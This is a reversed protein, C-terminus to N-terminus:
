RGYFVDRDRSADLSSKTRGAALMRVIDAIGEADLFLLKMLLDREGHQIWRDPIAHIKVKNTDEGRLSLSELVASGFGGMAAHDEVTLVWPHRRVLTAALDVDIPKAFRANAVGVDLGERLLIQRAKIAQEVMVGYALIAGDKGEFLMEGRGLEIPKEPFGFIGLDPVNARPYRIASPGKLTTMFRMMKEM